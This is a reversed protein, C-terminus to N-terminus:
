DESQLDCILLSIYKETIIFLINLYVDEREQLETTKM